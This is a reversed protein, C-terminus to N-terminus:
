DVRAWDFTCNYALGGNYPASDIQMNYCVVKINENGVLLRLTQGANKRYSKFSKSQAKASLGPLAEDSLVGTITGSDGGIYQTILVPPGDLRQVLEQVDNNQRQKTPNLFCCIGSNDLAM